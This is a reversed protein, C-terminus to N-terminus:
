FKIWMAVQAQTRGSQIMKICYDLDTESLHSIESMDFLDFDPTTLKFFSNIFVAKNWAASGEKPLSVTGETWDVLKLKPSTEM